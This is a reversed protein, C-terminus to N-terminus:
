TELHSTGWIKTIEIKAEAIQVDQVLCKVRANEVGGEIDKVLQPLRDLAERISPSRTLIKYPVWRDLM